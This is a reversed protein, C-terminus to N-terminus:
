PGPTSDAERTYLHGTRLASLRVVLMRRGDQFVPAEVQLFGGPRYHAQKGNLFHYM